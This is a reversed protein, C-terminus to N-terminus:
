FPVWLQAKGCICNAYLARYTYSNLGPHLILAIYKLIQETLFDYKNDKSNPNYLHIDSNSLCEQLNQHFFIDYIHKSHALNETEDMSIFEEGDLAILRKKRTEDETNVSILYFGSYKDKFYYAEYPNRIADICIRTQIIGALQNHRQVIQIIADIRKAVDHFNAQTYSGVYPNGSSRINNGIEQMLYTYLHYKEFKTQSFKDVYERHCTHDSIANYFERKFAPLTELYFQYYAEVKENSSLIENLSADTSLNCLESYKFMYDLSNVIEKLEDYSSIRIDNTESINKFQLLYQELASKGAGLIYSFIVGRGEIVTFPGWNGPEAMYRYIVEYKREDRSNYDYSKPQHVDLDAFTKRKLIKSVTTCGSGTRGTLGLIILSNRQLLAYDVSNVYNEKKNMTVDERFFTLM